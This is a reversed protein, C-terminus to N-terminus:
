VRVTEMTQPTFLTEPKPREAVLGQEHAYRTLADLTARNADIGYPWYDDGMVARTAEAEAAIWPLTIKLATVEDLEPLCLAKATEFAKMVSSPLWPHEAVLTERIGILHMIPFIGTRAAYDQEVARFGPFLRQIDPAGRTFCSPARPSVLADIEGAELMASLTRDEGVPTVAIGGPLAVKERRGPQEIGGTRWHIDAPAVGYEDALIGRVWVAATVQYEPVGVERGKLDAPERVGKAVNVYIASHRFARSPFVPIGVYPCDGRSRAIMYTSFSLESVDFEANRFARFFVEEPALPLYTLACGEVEVRGDMLARTRDYDWCALTLPLIRTPRASM